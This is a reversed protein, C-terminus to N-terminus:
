FLLHSVLMTVSQLRINIITNSIETVEANEAVKGKYDPERVNGKPNRHPQM